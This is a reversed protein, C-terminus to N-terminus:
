LGHRARAHTKARVDREIWDTFLAHQEEISLDGEGVLARRRDCVPRLTLAAAVSVNFSEAFGRMPVRVVGDALERAERSVGQLESGFVLAVPSDVPVTEPAYANEELDCVYIRYGRDKLAHLCASTTDHRAIQVWREAGRAAGPAPRFANTVLHVQHVGFAEASRLIASVNHRRRVAEVVVVVSQLRVSLV